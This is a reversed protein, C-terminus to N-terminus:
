AGASAARPRSLVVITRESVEFISGAIVENLPRPENRSTDFVLRWQTGIAAEPITFTRPEQDANFLLLFSDDRVQQGDDDVDHLADGNLFVAIAKAHEQHWDDDAMAAGEPTFWAIDTGPVDSSPRGRFWRRRRFVPHETRIQILRRTVALLDTDASEWDFWSLENDQCYANNNGNQTRGLEDGGLLMPIGQSLLLTTLL